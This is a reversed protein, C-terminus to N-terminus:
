IRNAKAIAGLHHASAKPTRAFTTRDVSVLGFQQAYGATWEFNDLLSWHLYGRLDIGEAICDRVEALCSDIFAVRRADDHTSIGSETIYVPRSGLKAAYRVMAGLAPPYYEYGSGTLEAGASPPLPGDAGIRIRTYTQVGIFDAPVQPNIWREYLGRRLDAALEQGGSEAQLDQMSMSLGVPFRGPGAKMAAYGKRHADLMGPEIRDADAFIWSSFRDSGCAKASAALMAALAPRIKGITPILVPILRPANIENFTTALAILSGLRATAHEVYRAFLDGGDAVEFGGRAAFWKPVTFHNFTVVPALGKAHCAELVRLYHDLAAQSFVGPEPEIRSWEIGFRHCNFGLAAALNIDTEFLDYSNCADGSPERFLTPKVHENLWSDSNVNNGESQHSSIETGWLFGSPARRRPPGAALLPATAGIAAAGLGKVVTRRQM